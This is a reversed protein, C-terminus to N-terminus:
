VSKSEMKEKMSNLQSYTLTKLEVFHHGLLPQIKTGFKRIKYSNKPRKEKQKRLREQLSFKKTM